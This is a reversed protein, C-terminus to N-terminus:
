KPWVRELLAEWFSKTFIAWGKEFLNKTCRVIKATKSRAANQKKKALVVKGLDAECHELHAQYFLTGREFLGDRQNVLQKYEIFDAKGKKLAAKLWKYIEDIFTTWDKLYDNKTDPSVAPNTAHEERVWGKAWQCEKGFDDLLGRCYADLKEPPLTGKKKAAFCKSFVAKAEDLLNYLRMVQHEDALRSLQEPTLKRLQELLPSELKDM